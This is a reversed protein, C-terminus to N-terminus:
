AVLSGAVSTFTKGQNFNTAPSITKISNPFRIGASKLIISLLSMFTSLELKVPSVNNSKLVTSHVLLSFGRSVLFRANKPVNHLSTYM